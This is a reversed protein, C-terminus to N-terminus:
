KNWNQKNIRKVLKYSEDQKKYLLNRYYQMKIKEYQKNYEQVNCIEVSPFIIKHNKEFKNIKKKKVKYLLDTEIDKYIRYEVKPNTDYTLYEKEIKGEENKECAYSGIFVLVNKNTKPNIKTESVTKALTVYLDEMSITKNEKINEELKMYFNKRYESLEEKNM